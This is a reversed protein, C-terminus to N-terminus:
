NLKDDFEILRFDCSNHERELRPKKLFMALSTGVGFQQQVDTSFMAMCSFDSVSMSSSHLEWLNTGFLSQGSCHMTLRMCAVFTLAPTRSKMFALLASQHM